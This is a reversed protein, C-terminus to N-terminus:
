SVPGIHKCPRQWRKYSKLAQNSQTIAGTKLLREATIKNPQQWLQGLEEKLYNWFPKLANEGKGNGVFVIAGTEQNIVVKLFRHRRGVDIEDIAIIKLDRLRPKGFNQQLYKKDISRIMTESVGLYRAVDQITMMKRLDIVLRAFSETYQCHPVVKPIAANLVQQCSRYEL